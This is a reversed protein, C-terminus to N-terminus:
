GALDYARGHPHRAHEEEGRRRDARVEAPLRPTAMAVRNQVLVQALDLNTGLEFTVTISVNGDATSQSSM